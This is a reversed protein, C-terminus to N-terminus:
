PNLRMILRAQPPHLPTTNTFPGRPHVWRPPSTSIGLFGRHVMKTSIKLKSVIKARKSPHAHEHASGKVVASPLPVNRKNRKEPCFTTSRQRLVFRVRGLEREGASSIICLHRQLACVTWSSNCVQSPASSRPPVSRARARISSRAAGFVVLDRTSM